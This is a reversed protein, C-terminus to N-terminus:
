STPSSESQPEPQSEQQSEAPTSPISQLSASLASVINERLKEQILPAQKAFQEQLDKALNEKLNAQASELNEKLSLLKKQLGQMQSVLQGMSEIGDLKLEPIQIAGSLDLNLPKNDNNIDNM